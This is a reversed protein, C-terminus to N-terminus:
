RVLLVAGRLGADDGFKPTVIMSEADQDEMGLYGAMQEVFRRRIRPLIFPSTMLGGGLVIKDACTTLYIARCAQALYDAAIDWGPHEADWKIPDGFRQKLATVSAMGELCTAHFSCSGTFDGDGKARAVPIHGFEPHRPRGIILGNSALGAGIGTGVTLYAANTAGQAAGDSMEALLAANVDTDINVTVGLADVFAQRIGFGSWGTKPTGLLSGFDDSEPDLNLPGFSALGLGTMDKTTAGLDSMARRFFEACGDVTKLPDSTTVRLRAVWNVDMDDGVQALGCKFTTGGADIGGIYRTM